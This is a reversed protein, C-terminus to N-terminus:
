AARNVPLYACRVSVPPIPWLRGCSAGGSKTWAIWSASVKAHFAFLSSQWSRSNNALAGAVAQRLLPLTSALRARLLELRAQELDSLPGTEAIALLGQAASILALLQPHDPRPKGPTSAFM